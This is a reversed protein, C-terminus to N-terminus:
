RGAEGRGSKAKEAHESRNQKAFTDATLDFATSRGDQGCTRPYFRCCCKVQASGLPGRCAESTQSHGHRDAFYAVAIDFGHDLQEALVVAVIVGDGLEIIRLPHFAADIRVRNRLPISLM